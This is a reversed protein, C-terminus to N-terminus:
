ALLNFDARYLVGHQGRRTTELYLMLKGTAPHELEYTESPLAEAQDGAFALTFQRTGPRHAAQTVKVLQVRLGRAGNYLLFTQGLLTAFARASLEGAGQAAAAPGIGSWALAALGSAIFHRRQM